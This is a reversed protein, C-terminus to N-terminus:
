HTANNFWGYGKSLIPQNNDLLIAREISINEHVSAEIHLVKVWLRRMPATTSKVNLMPM